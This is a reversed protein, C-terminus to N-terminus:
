SISLSLSLSLSLYFLFPFPLYFFAFNLCHLSHVNWTTGTKSCIRRMEKYPNSRSQSQTFFHYVKCRFISIEHFTWVDHGTLCHWDSNGETSHCVLAWIGVQAEQKEKVAQVTSVKPTEQAEKQTDQYHGALETEDPGSLHLDVCEFLPSLSIWRLAKMMVKKCDIRM